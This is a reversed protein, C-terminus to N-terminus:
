SFLSPSPNIVIQSLPNSLDAGGAHKVFVAPTLFSGHCVWVIRIGEYCKMYRYLFGNIKKGDPCTTAQVFPCADNNLPVARVPRGNNMFYDPTLGFVGSSEREDFKKYASKKWKDVKFPPFQDVDNVIYPVYDDTMKGVLDYFDNFLIECNDEQVWYSYIEDGPVCMTAHNIMDNWDVHKMGALKFPNSVGEIVRIDTHVAIRVGLKVEMRQSNDMIIAGEHDRRGDILDFTGNKVLRKIGKRPEIISEVFEVESWLDRKEDFGGEIVVLDVTVSALPHDCAIPKGGDYMVVKIQNGGDETKLTDNKYITRSVSNEIVLRFRTSQIVQSRQSPSLMYHNVEACGQKRMDKVKLTLKEHDETVIRLDEEYKNKDKKREVKLNGIKRKFNVETSVKVNKIEVGMMYKGTRAHFSSTQFYANGLEAEGNTLAFVCDGGLAPPQKAYHSHVLCASFEEPTWYEQGEVNFDGHLLVVEVSASSLPGSTVLLNNEDYLAVKLLNGDESKIHERTYYDSCVRNFFRLQYKAIMQKKAPPGDDSDYPEIPRILVGRRQRTQTARSTVSTIIKLVSDGSSIHAKDMLITSPFTEGYFRSQTSYLPMLQDLFNWHKKLELHPEDWQLLVQGYRFSGYTKAIQTGVNLNPVDEVSIDGTSQSRLGLGTPTSNLQYLESLSGYNDSYALQSSADAFSTYNDQEVYGAKRLSDQIVPPPCSHQTYPTVPGQGTTLCLGTKNSLSALPHDSAIPNGGDYMVVKIHVGGDETVVPEKKYITRRMSSEIVLRLRTSQSLQSRQSPSSNYHNVEACGEKRMEQIKIKLDEHNEKLIRFDERLIRLDEEHKNKDKRRKEKLKEIKRKFKEDTSVKVQIVDKLEIVADRFIYPFEEWPMRNNTRSTEGNQCHCSRRRKDDSSSLDDRWEDQKRKKGMLGGLSNKRTAQSWRVYSMGIATLTGVWGRRDGPNIAALRKSRGGSARLVAVEEGSMGDGAAWRRQGQGCM